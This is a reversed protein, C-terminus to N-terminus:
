KENTPIDSESSMSPASSSSSSSSSHASSSSSSSHTSSSTAPSSPIYGHYAESIRRTSSSALDAAFDNLSLCQNRSITTESANESGTTYPALVLLFGQVCADFDRGQPYVFKGDLARKVIRIMRLKEKYCAEYVAKEAQSIFPSVLVVGNRALSLYYDVESQIQEPTLDRHCRVQQREPYTIMFTDGVATYHTKSTGAIFDYVKRLRDPFRQKLWRRRPNDRLYAIWGDLQGKYLLPRDNYGPSFLSPCSESSMSPAPSSSSSPYSPSSPSSSSSPSSAWYARSCAGKWAGIIKGLTWGKPLTDHIQLIGHFHEPMLQYQLVQVYCGTLERMKREIAKFEDIVTQGLPTPTIHASDPTDGEITGLLRERNTTELTILYAFPAAYDHGFKRRLKSHQIPAHYESSTSSASSSSSVAMSSSSVAMSSGIQNENEADRTLAVNNPQNGTM